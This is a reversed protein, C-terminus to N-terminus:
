QLGRRVQAVLGALRRAVDAVTPLGDARLPRLPLVVVSDFRSLHGASGLGPTSVPIFM